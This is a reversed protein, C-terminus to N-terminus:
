ARLRKVITSKTPKPKTSSRKVSLGLASLMGEAAQTGSDDPDGMVGTKYLVEAQDLTYENFWQKVSIYGQSGLKKQVEEETAGDPLGYAKKALALKNSKSKFYKWITMGLGIAAAVAGAGAMVMWGVPNSMGLALLAIGGGVMLAGRGVQGLAKAQAADAQAAAFEAMGALEPNVKGAAEKLKDRQGRKKTYTYIGIGAQVLGSFIALGGTAGWAAATCGAAGYTDIVQHALKASQTASDVVGQAATTLVDEVADGNYAKVGADVLQILGGLVALSPGLTDTVNAAQTEGALKLGGGTTSNIGGTVGVGIGGVTGNSLGPQAVGEQAAENAAKRSQESLGVWDQSQYWRRYVTAWATKELDDLNTSPGITIDALRAITKWQVGASLKMFFDESFAKKTPDKAQEKMNAIFANPRRSVLRMWTENGQGPKDFQVSTGSAGGTPGAQLLPEASEGRVVADAVADAHQEYKDGVSGVGGELQVGQSQQVTHAAEHAATHLSPIGSFAVNSGMAFANSGFSENAQRAANDTHATVGSIDFSGFSQQITDFYPLKGGGGGTGKSATEMSPANTTGGDFQVPALADRLHDGPNDTESAKFTRETTTAPM